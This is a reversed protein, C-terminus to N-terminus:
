FTDFQFRRHAVIDKWLETRIILFRKERTERVNLAYPVSQWSCCINNPILEDILLDWFGWPELM